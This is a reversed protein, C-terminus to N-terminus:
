AAYKLTHQSCRPIERTTVRGWYYEEWRKPQDVRSPFLRKTLMEELTIRRDLLGLKMAPTERHKRESTWKVYNRWAVFLNLRWIAMQRRKPFAITERKHNAGSHRILLDILNAAFLLNM